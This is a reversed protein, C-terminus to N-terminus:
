STYNAYIRELVAEQSQTLLTGNDVRMRINAVFSSEWNTLLDSAETEIADLWAKYVEVPQPKWLEAM